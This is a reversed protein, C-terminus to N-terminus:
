IVSFADKNRVYTSSALGASQRAGKKTARRSVQLPKDSQPYMANSRHSNRLTNGESSQTTTLPTMETEHAWSGKKNM